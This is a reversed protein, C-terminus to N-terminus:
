RHHKVECGIPNFNNTFLKVNLQRFDLCVTSVTSPGAIRAKIAFSQKHVRQTVTSSAFGSTM